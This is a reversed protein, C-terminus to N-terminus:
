KKRRELAELIQKRLPEHQAKSQQSRELSVAKDLAALAEELRNFSVLIRGLTAWNRPRGEDLKCSREAAELATDLHQNRFGWFSAYYYLAIPDDTITQCYSPGFIAEAREPMGMKLYISAAQSREFVRITELRSAMDLAALASETNTGQRTWFSAYECLAQADDKFNPILDPGFVDLAEKPRNADILNQATFYHDTWSRPCSRLAAVLASIASEPYPIARTQAGKRRLIRSRARERWSM